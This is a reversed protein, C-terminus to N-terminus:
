HFRQELNSPSTKREKKEVVRTRIKGNDIYVEDEVGIENHSDHNFSVEERDFGIELIDGRNFIKKNM